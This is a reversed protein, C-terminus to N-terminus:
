SAFWPPSQYTHFSFLENAFTASHAANPAVGADTGVIPVSPVFTRTPNMVVAVPPVRLRLTNVVLPDSDDFVARRVPTVIRSRPPTNWPDASKPAVRVIM